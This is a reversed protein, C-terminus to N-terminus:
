FFTHGMHTVEHDLVNPHFAKIKTILVHRIESVLCRTEMSRESVQDRDQESHPHYVM